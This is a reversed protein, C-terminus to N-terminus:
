TPTDVDDWEANQFRTLWNFAYHREFIVGPELGPPPAVNKVRADTTAWHLRFHVDLADLVAGVLRLRADAPLEGPIRERVARALAPVDCIGSPFPLEGTIDLAWALAALSEYRWLHNVVQQHAPRDTDMFAREKPSMGEFAEPMRARIEEVPLPSPSQLSEARVACAFLARCRSAVERSSRHDVEIESVVPPLSAPVSIGRKALAEDTAAKRRLADAPYPVDAGPQPDGTAPDVLISGTPTRVAGDPSFVIANAAVAWREFADFANADVELAIQHRVRQLHGLVHYRVATMPRKGRDMIFGAFGELHRALEPDSRDSRSRLVHAFALAPPDRHTCYANLLM